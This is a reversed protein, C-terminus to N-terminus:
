LDHQLQKVFILTMQKRKHFRPKTCKCSPIDKTKIEEILFNKVAKVTNIPLHLKAFSINM